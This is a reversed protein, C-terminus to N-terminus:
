IWDRQEAGQDERTADREYDEAIRELMARTREWTFACAMADARYQAAIEREQTGGDTPRRVTVGRRNSLGIQFGDELDRSSCQEIVERVPEPPWADGPVRLAASLVRGIRSDGVEARGAEACLRRAERVWALLAPRDIVGDDRSGPVRAWEDLVHFAQIAIERAAELAPSDELPSEDKSPFVAALLQLFFAPHTSLAKHLTRAPRDSNQLVNFYTWELGVLEAEAVSADADLRKFACSTYHAFMVGDRAEAADDGPKVTSSDHLVRLIDASSVDIDRRGGIMELAVRGRGVDLYKKIVLSFDEACPISFSRLSLWYSRDLEPSATAIRAWTKEVVPLAFAFLLNERNPRGELLGLDFRRSVWDEGRAEGLVFIMRQALAVTAPDDSRLAFDLVEDKKGDPLASSALAHGFIEPLDLTRAYDVLNEAGSGAAIEEAAARQEAFLRAEGEEFTYGGRFRQNGRNFLWAHKAAPDEPELQDFIAKLPQLSVPDMAWDSDPFAEHKDILSRLKERFAIRDQGAFRCAAEGLRNAAPGRWEPGFNAWRELVATWRSADDAARAIIREGIAAYAKEITSQTIPEPEEVSFDRWRPMAGALSVGHNRPAVDMLLDWGVGDHREIIADMLRLRQDSTAHTQRVWPLFIRCLSARPRNGLKGGPDVEALRALLMAGAGLHKPSWCLIELSWMLNALYERPHLFGVDSRFLAALPSPSKDLAAVVCEIFAKPAAEALNRFDESLSWWLREDAASLLLRLTRDSREAADPVSRAQESFVGLAIMAESLGRRLEPSPHKPPEPDFAWLSDPGTDFNPSAQGLVTLFCEQLRDLHVAALRPGLVFWADRLSALKWVPGSHRVPGDFASALPALDAEVETYPRAGLRELIERDAPHDECWAGALMAAVLSPSVPDRSWAPLRAPSATLIRRLAALSRGCLGSLRNAELMPLTMAELEHRVTSRWPRPLRMTNSPAGVDSGCAVYVHHGDEVLAAAVGPEGGNLVVVLKSGLGVLQRAVADSEAVLIRSEWYIRHELPLQGITAHLFAMAEDAAEAQVSLISEPESLWRLVSVWQDDRDAILLDQSLAPLTALSWERWVEGLNRLGLPRRNIRVALWEAVGPYLDLWNVLMDADIVQVDRWIGEARREAAWRDKAPWRQPTFFVFCAQSRDVGLPAATRKEYDGQAKSGIKSRQGGMEWVSKGAPIYTSKGPVDCMGDWGAHQVSDDSPFRLVAAPGYVALILRSALEPLKAQGDRSAGWQVLDHAEIWRMPRGPKPPTPVPAKGSVVVGGPLFQIGQGELAAKIAAANNAVPTRHGREFDAVTSTAVSAARALDSQKWALLARAARVHSPALALM